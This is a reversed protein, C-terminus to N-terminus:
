KPGAVRLLDLGVQYAQEPDLHIETILPDDRNDRLWICNDERRVSLAEQTPQEIDKGIGM